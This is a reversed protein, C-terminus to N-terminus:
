DNSLKYVSQTTLPNGTAFDLGIKPFLKDCADGVSHCGTDENLPQDAWIAGVDLVITSEKADFKKGKLVIRNRNHKSCTVTGAQPDGSCATSGAHLWADVFIEGAPVVQQFEIQTFRYGFLWGWLMQSSKLPEPVTVPDAHNLEEPVGNTFAVGVYKGEPVTGTIVKNTAATGAACNGTADEFDLLALKGNQWANTDLTVPVETNDERILAIDQFNLRLDAPTMKARQTGMQYQRGCAFDSKGVKAQFKLKVKQPNACGKGKEDRCPQPKKDPSDAYSGAASKAGTALGYELNGSDLEGAESACAATLSVICPLVLQFQRTVLKKM